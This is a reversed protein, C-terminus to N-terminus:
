PADTAPSPLDLRGHSVSSASGSAVPSLAILAHLYKHRDWAARSPPIAINTAISGSADRVHKHVSPRVLRAADSTACQQV